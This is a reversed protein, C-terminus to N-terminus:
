RRGWRGFDGSGRGGGGGGGGLVPTEGRWRSSVVSGRWVMWRRTSDGDGAGRELALRWRPRGRRAGGRWDVTAGAHGAEWVAWGRCCPPTMPLRRRRCGCRGPWLLAPPSRTRRRPPCSRAADSRCCTSRRRAASTGRRSACRTTISGHDMDM